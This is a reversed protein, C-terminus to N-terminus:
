LAWLPHGNLRADAYIAAIARIPTDDARHGRQRKSFDSRDEIARWRAIGITRHRANGRQGFRRRRLEGEETRFLEQGIELAGSGGCGDNLLADLKRRIM